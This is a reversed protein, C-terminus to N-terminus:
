FQAYSLVGGASVAGTTVACLAYGPSLGVIVGNGDGSAIGTQATFNYVGTLAGQNAGSGCNAGIGQIWQVSGTGNYVIDWHTIYIRLGSIGNVIITTAASNFILPATFQTLPIVPQAWAVGCVLLSVLAALLRKM